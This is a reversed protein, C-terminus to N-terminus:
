RLRRVQRPCLSVLPSTSSVIDGSKAAIMRRNIVFCRESDCAGRYQDAEGLVQWRECPIIALGAHEHTCADLGLGDHFGATEYGVYGDEAEDEAFEGSAAPEGWLVM